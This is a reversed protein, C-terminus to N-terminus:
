CPACRFWLIRLAKRKRKKSPGDNKGGSGALKQLKQVITKSQSDLRSLEQEYDSANDLIDVVREEDILNGDGDLWDQDVESIPQGARLEVELQAKRDRVQDRLKNLGKKLVEVPTM